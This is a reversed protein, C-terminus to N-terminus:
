EFSVRVPSELPLRPAPTTDQVCDDCVYEAVTEQEVQSNGYASANIAGGYLFVTTLSILVVSTIFGMM